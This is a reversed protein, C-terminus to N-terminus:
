PVSTKRRLARILGGLLKGVLGAKELLLETANKSVHGLMEALIVQTEM